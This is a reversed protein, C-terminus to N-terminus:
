KLSMPTTFTTTGAVPKEYMWSKLPHEESTQDLKLQNYIDMTDKVVRQTVYNDIVNGGMVLFPDRPRKSFEMMYDLDKM